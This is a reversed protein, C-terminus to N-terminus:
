SATGDEHPAAKPQPADDDYYDESRMLIKRLHQGALVIFAFSVFGVLAYFAPFHDAMGGIVGALGTKGEFHPYHGLKHMSALVFGGIASVVSGGILVIWIIRMTGPKEWVSKEEPLIEHPQDMM